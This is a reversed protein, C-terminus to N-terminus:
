STGSRSSRTLGIGASVVLGIGAFAIVTLHEGLVLGGILAGIAPDLAFLTAVIAIGALRLALYDLLFAVGVGLAGIAILTVWTGPSSPPPHAIVTPTLLVGSFGVALALEGFGANSGLRRSLVTYVALAVAASVGALLGVMAGVPAQDPRTVAVVGALALLPWVLQCRRQIAFAALVFPGVYLLSAAVGLPLRDVATYYLANMSAMSAGLGAILLWTRAPRPSLTPRFLLLLTLGGVVQRWAAVTTPSMEVFIPSALAASGQVALCSGLVALAGFVRARVQGIGRTQPQTVDPGSGPSAFPLNM